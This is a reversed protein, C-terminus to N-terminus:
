RVVRVKLEFNEIIAKSIAEAIIEETDLSVNQYISLRFFISHVMEHLLVQDLEKKKLQNSLQILGSSHSLGGVGAELEVTEVKIKQGFVILFKPLRM